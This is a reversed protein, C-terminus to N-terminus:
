NHLPTVTKKLKECYYKYAAKVFPEGETEYFQTDTCDLIKYDEETLYQEIDWYYKLRPDERFRDLVNIYTNHLLNFLGEDEIRQLGRMAYCYCEYRWNCFFQIFGGNGIDVYLKWLAAIEQEEKDLKSWDGQLDILKQNFEISYDDWLDYYKEM